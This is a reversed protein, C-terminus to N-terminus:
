NTKKNKNKNNKKKNKNKEKENPDTGTKEYFYQIFDELFYDTSIPNYDNSEENNEAADEAIMLHRFDNIM